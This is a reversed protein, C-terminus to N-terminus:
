YPRFKRTATLKAIRVKDQQFKRQLEEVNKRQEERREFSYFYVLNKKSKKKKPQDTSQRKLKSPRRAKVKIFGEEDVEAEQGQKKEQETRLDFAETFKDVQLQLTDVQPRMSQYEAIWKKMGLPQSQGYSSSVQVPVNEVQDKKKKDAKKFDGQTHSEKFALARKISPEEEYTVHASKSSGVQQIDVSEVPGFCSFIETIDEYNYHPPVNTVFLTRGSNEDTSVHKKYFFYRTFERGAESCPVSLTLYSM